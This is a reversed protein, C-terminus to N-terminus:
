WSATLSVTPIAVLGIAHQMVVDLARATGYGQELYRVLSRYFEGAEAVDHTLLETWLWVGEAPPRDLPDGGEARILALPAGGPDRVIAVRGRSGATGPGDLVSGFREEVLDVAADVNSVSLSSLWLAAAAGNEPHDYLAVGGIPTVAYDGGDTESFQWDFLAGYFAQAGAPDRTLLDRWVFKGVAIQTSGIGTVPPLPPTRFSACGTVVMAVLVVGVWRRATGSCTMSSLRRSRIRKTRAFVKTVAMSPLAVCSRASSM